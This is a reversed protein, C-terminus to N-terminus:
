RLVLVSVQGRIMAGVLVDDGEARLWRNEAKRVTDVAKTMHSMIYDRDFVIKTDADGLHARVSNAYPGWMDMAVAEIRTFDEAGLTDFFADLGAKKREDAIGWGEDWSLRLIRCAGRSTASKSCTM